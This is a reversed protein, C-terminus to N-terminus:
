KNMLNSYIKLLKEEMVGWNYKELFAKRGKEGLRKRLAPNDKLTVIAERIQKINDYQVIIGFGISNVFEPAINTIIPVGSMMTDFLKNPLTINHWPLEPDYLGIIVDSSAQLDLADMPRLKGMFKLNPTRLIDNLFKKDNETYWGAIVFEVNQLVKIAEIINELGRTRRVIDGTYVIRLLKNENSNKKDIAHDTPCNMIIVSHKPRNRFTSLVKESITILVDARGSFFEEFFNIASYFVKNKKPVFAMAYRDFVDFILKKRFLVKYFYCPVVTDLDCAHVVNPRCKILRIFVWAWYYAYYFGMKPSDIISNGSPAKLNCLKLDATYNDVINKPVKERNWGLALLSYRKSISGVIKFVRIDYVIPNCRTVVIDVL